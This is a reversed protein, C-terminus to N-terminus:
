SRTASSLDFAATDVVLGAYRMSVPKKSNLPRDPRPTDHLAFHKVHGMGIFFPPAKERRFLISDHARM